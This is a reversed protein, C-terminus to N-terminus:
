VADDPRNQESEVKSGKDQLDKYGASNKQVKDKAEFHAKANYVENKAEQTQADWSNNAQQAKDMNDALARGAKLNARSAAEKAEDQYGKAIDSIKYSTNQQRDIHDALDKGAQRDTKSVASKVHEQTHKVKSTVHDSAAEAKEMGEAIVKGTKHNLKSAADKVNDITPTAEEATQMASALAEGTRKNAKSLFEKATNVPGKTKIPTYAFTRTPQSVAVRSLSSRAIISRFM